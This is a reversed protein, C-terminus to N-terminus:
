KAAKFATQIAPDAAIVGGYWLIATLTLHQNDWLTLHRDGPVFAACGQETCFAGLRDVFAIGRDASLTALAANISGIDFRFASAPLRIDPSLTEATVGMQRLQAPVSIRFVPGAGVIVASEERGSLLDLTTGLAEPTGPPWHSALVVAAAGTETLARPLLESLGPFCDRKADQKQEAPACGSQHLLLFDRGPFGARLAHFVDRGQSDGIVLVPASFGPAVLCRALTDLDHTEDYSCQIGSTIPGDSATSSHITAVYAEREGDAIDQLFRYSEMPLAERFADMAGARQGAGWLAAFVAPPLLTLVAMPRVTRWFSLRRIPTEVFRYSLEAIPFAILLATLYQSETPRGSALTVTVILPWHWLYLSYSRTGVWQMFRSELLWLVPDRRGRPAALILLAALVPPLATAGPFPTDAGYTTSCYFILGLGVLRLPIGGQGPLALRHQALGLAGGAALEWFRPLIGFFARSPDDASLAMAFLFSALAAACVAILRYRGLVILPIPALLYFQFEVGLSWTHLLLSTESAREFYGSQALLVYNSVYAAAGALTDTFDAFAGRGLLLAAAVLAYVLAPILAPVLRRVRRAFFAPLAFRGQDQLSAIQPIILYGSVVFFVDVGVFGGTLDHLGAHFAMVILVAVARLGDIDRRISTDRM